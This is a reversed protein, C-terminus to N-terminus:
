SQEAPPLLGSRRAPPLLPRLPMCLVYLLAACARYLARGTDRGLRRFARWAEWARLARVRARARRPSGTIALLEDWSYQEHRREDDLVATFAAALEADIRRALTAAHIEFQRRGRAEAFHVFALFDREGLQEYLCECQARPPLPAPDGAAGALRVAQAHFSRAHRTEDSAHRLYLAARAPEACLRAALRLDTASSREVAAFHAMRRGRARASRWLWPDVRALWWLRM